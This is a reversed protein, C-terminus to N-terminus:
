SKFLHCYFLLVLVHFLLSVSHSTGDPYSPTVFHQRPSTKQKPAAPQQDSTKPGTSTNVNWFSVKPTVDLPPDHIPPFLSFMQSSFLLCLETLSHYMVPRSYICFWSRHLHPSCKIREFFLCQFIKFPIYWWFRFNWFCGDPSTRDGM